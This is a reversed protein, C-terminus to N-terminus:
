RAAAKAKRIGRRFANEIYKYFKPAYWRAIHVEFGRPEFGPHTVKKFKRMRGTAQGPGGYHGGASTRAKYSGKGDWRFILWQAVKITIDHIKTGTVSVWKWIKANPGAPFVYISIGQKTIKKMAKFAPRHEDSWHAVIRNFYELLDPKVRNDIEHEVEKIALDWNPTRARGKIQRFYIRPM